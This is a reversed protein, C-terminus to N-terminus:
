FQARVGIEIKRPNTASTSRGFNPSTMVGSPPGFNTRNFANTLNVFVNVNRRTAGPAPGSLFFAKSVNADVNLVKPRNGSNRPVGAPRDTVNGDRNNDLGTTINYYGGDNTNLAGTLFVGLPM